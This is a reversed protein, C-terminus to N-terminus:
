MNEDDGKRKESTNGKVRGKRKGMDSLRYQMENEWTEENM